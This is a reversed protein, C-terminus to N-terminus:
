RTLRMLFTVVAIIGIGVALKGIINRLKVTTEATPM